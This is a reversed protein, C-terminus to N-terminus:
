FLGRYLVLGQVISAGDETSVGQVISSRNVISGRHVTSVRTVGTYLVSNVWTCQLISVRTCNCLSVLSRM